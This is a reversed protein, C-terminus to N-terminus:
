RVEIRRHAIMKDSWRFEVSHPGPERATLTVGKGGASKGPVTARDIEAGGRLLVFECLEDTDDMYDITAAFPEGAAPSVTSLSFKVRSHYSRLERCAELGATALGALLGLASRRTM